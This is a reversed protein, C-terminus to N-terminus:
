LKWIDRRVLGLLQHPAPAEQFPLPSPGPVKPNDDIIEFSDLVKTVSGLACELKRSVYINLNYLRRGVLYFRQINVGEGDKIRLERGPHGGLKLELDGELQGGYKALLVERLNDLVRKSVSADELTKDSDSFSIEYKGHNLVFWKFRTTV